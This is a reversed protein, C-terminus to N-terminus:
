AAIDRCFNYWDVVTKPALEVNEVVFKNPLGRSWCAVVWLIQRLELHSKEFLTGIRISM